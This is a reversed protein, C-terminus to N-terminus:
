CRPDSGEATFILPQWHDVITWPSTPPAVQLARELARVDMASQSWLDWHMPIWRTARLASAAALAQEPSLYFQDTPDPRGVSLLAYTPAIKTGIKQFLPNDYLSDGGHFICLDKTAVTYM